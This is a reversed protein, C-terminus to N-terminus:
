MSDRSLLCSAPHSSGKLSRGTFRLNEFNQWAQLVPVHAKTSPIPPFFDSLQSGEGTMYGLACIGYTKLSRGTLDM